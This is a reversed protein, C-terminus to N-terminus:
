QYIKTVIRQESIPIDWEVHSSAKLIIETSSCIMSLPVLPIDLEALTDAPSDFVYSITEGVSQPYAKVRLKGDVNMPILAGERVFLPVRDLPAEVLLSQGGSCLGATHWDYWMSGKPLYVKRSTVGEDVVSAVLLWPGLLFDFSEEHIKPDESFHYVLPRIIPHGKTAAEHFLSHLYPVFQLRFNLASRIAPMIEPYMWPSNEDEDLGRWSHICFRPHFIGNQVWRLFLEFSPKTGGFGGIDHGVNAFGSLSM